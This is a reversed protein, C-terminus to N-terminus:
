ELYIKYNKGKSSEVPILDLWRYFYPLKNVEWKWIRQTLPSEPALTEEDVQCYNAFGIATSVGVYFLLIPRFSRLFQANPQKLDMDHQWLREFITPEKM